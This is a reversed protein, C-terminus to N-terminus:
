KPPTHLSSLVLDVVVVLVLRTSPLVVVVVVELTQWEMGVMSHIDQILLTEAVVVM